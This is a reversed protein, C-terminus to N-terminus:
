KRGHSFGDLFKGNAPIKPALNGFEGVPHGHLLRQLDAQGSLRELHQHAERAPFLFQGETKQVGFADDPIQRFDGGKVEAARGGVGQQGGVHHVDGQGLRGQGAPAPAVQRM